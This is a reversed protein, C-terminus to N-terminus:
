SWGPSVCPSLLSEELGPYFFRSYFKLRPNRAGVRASTSDAEVEGGGAGRGLELEALFLNLEVVLLFEIRYDDCLKSKIWSKVLCIYVRKIRNVV